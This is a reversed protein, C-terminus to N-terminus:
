DWLENFPQTKVPKPSGGHGGSNVSGAMRRVPQAQSPRLSFTKNYRRITNQAASALARVGEEASKPRFGSARLGEFIEPMIDAYDKLAPYSKVADAVLTSRAQVRRQESIHGNLEQYQGNVQQFLSNAIKIVSKERADFLAQLLQAREAAPKEPDLISVLDQETIDRYGIQQRFAKEDFAPAGAAQNPQGLGNAKIGAVVAAAVDDPGFAKAPRVSPRRAPEGGAPEGSGGNPDRYDPSDPDDHKLPDYDDVELAAGDNDPLNANDDQWLDNVTDDAPERFGYRPFLKM